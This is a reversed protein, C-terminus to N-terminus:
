TAIASAWRRPSRQRLTNTYFFRTGDLSVGALVANYLSPLVTRDYGHVGEFPNEGRTLARRLNERLEEKVGRPRYGSAKLAGLTAPKSVREM